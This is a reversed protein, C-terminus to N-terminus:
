NPTKCFVYFRDLFLANPFAALCPFHRLHFKNIFFPRTWTLTTDYWNSLSDPLVSYDITDFAVSLYLLTSATVKGTNMNLSTDNYDKLLATETSHLLSFFM